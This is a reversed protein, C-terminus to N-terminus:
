ANPCRGQYVQAEKRELHELVNVHHGM